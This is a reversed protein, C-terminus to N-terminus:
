GLKQGTESKCFRRLETQTELENIEVLTSKVM